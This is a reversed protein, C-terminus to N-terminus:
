LILGWFGISAVLIFIGVGVSVGGDVVVSPEAGGKISSSSAVPATESTNAPEGPVNGYAECSANAAL